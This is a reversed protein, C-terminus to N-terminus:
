SQVYKVYKEKKKKNVQFPLYQFWDISVNQM